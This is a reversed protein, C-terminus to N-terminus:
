SAAGRLRLAAAAEDIDSYAIRVGGVDQYDEHGKGALLVVDRPDADAVAHRVADARNEIVDVQDHGIMGALIQSIIFEPPELRPNDSTVVVRDALRCAIAGMLPRKAADRNGGCGFVCWLQGGRAETLPRLAALVKDLADPTHAYDVVVQPGRQGDGVLQMRGPVPTLAACAAAADALAVGSARLVGIVGLLNAVNYQGVLATEVEAREAGELVEFSLGAARHRIQGAQLRATTGCACSWVDLASSTALREALARGQLDDTNIVAARLGPWEFLRAKAQWYLDMDGHYDLHDQTFNTFLAIDIPTGDLRNEAIGISSAEIAVAAVGADVFARLANQLAVPDPTTLGDGALAAPASGTAVPPEGIGLTGVVGARMGLRTMAQAVWWASSTKGNTGTCAVVRLRAGPDGLFRSAIPGAAAKLGALTAIRVDDFAYTEVGDAEVLCASAGAALAAGVHARADHSRGPWAIFAEGAHLRRSDTALASAGRLVLWDVAQRVSGLQQLAM